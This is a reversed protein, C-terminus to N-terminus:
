YRGIGIDIGIEIGGDAATTRGLGSISLGASVGQMRSDPISRTETRTTEITPTQRDSPRPPPDIQVRGTHDVVTKRPLNRTCLVYMCVYMCVCVYTHTDDDMKILIVMWADM